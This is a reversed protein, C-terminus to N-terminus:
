GVEGVLPVVAVVVLVVALLVIVESELLVLYQNQTRAVLASPFDPQAPGAFAVVSAAGTVPGAAGDGEREAPAYVLDKVV